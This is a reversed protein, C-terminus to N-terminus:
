TYKALSKIASGDYMRVHSATSDTTAVLPIGYTVGGRRIRLKHTSLLEEGAIKYTVGGKSYRIGIDEYAEGNAQIEYLYIYVNANNGDGEAWGGANCYARVKTTTISLGSLTTQGSDIGVGNFEDRSWGGTAGSFNIWSSGGWYQIAYSGNVNSGDSGYCGGGEVVRFSISSLLRNKSFTHESILSASCNYMGSASTGQYTSWSEDISNAGAGSGVGTYSHTTTTLIVLNRTAM